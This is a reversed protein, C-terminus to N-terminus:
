EGKEAHEARLDDFKTRAAAVADDAKRRFTRTVAHRLETGSKPSLLLAVAAGTLAGVGIWGLSGAVSSLTSKQEIGLLELIQDKDLNRIDKIGM